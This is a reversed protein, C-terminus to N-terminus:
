VNGFGAYVFQKQAVVMGVGGNNAPVVPATYNSTAAFTAASTDLTYGDIKGATNVAFVFAANTTGGGGPGQSLGGGSATCSSSGFNAGETCIYHGCGALSMLALALVPMLGARFRMTM